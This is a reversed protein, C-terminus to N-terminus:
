AASERRMRAGSLVHSIRMMEGYTLAGSKISNCQRCCPVVNGVVYGEDCDLRDLGSGTEPLGGGCYFCPKSRLVEFFFYPINMALGRRKATVKLNSYRARDSRDHRGNLSTVQCAKCHSQLGDKTNRANSFERWTKVSDCGSCRKEAPPAPLESRLRLKNRYFKTTQRSCEACRHKRKDKSYRDKTFNAVPLVLACTTCRKVEVGSEVWSQTGSM